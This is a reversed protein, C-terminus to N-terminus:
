PKYDRERKERGKRVRAAVWGRTVTMPVDGIELALREKKRGRVADAGVAAVPRGLGRCGGGAGGWEDRPGGLGLDPLLELLLERPQMQIIWQRRWEWGGFVAEGVDERLRQVDM